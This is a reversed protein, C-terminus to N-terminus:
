ISLATQGLRVRPNKPPNIVRQQLIDNWRGRERVGPTDQLSYLDRVAVWLLTDFSEAQPKRQLVTLLEGLERPVLGEEMQLDSFFEAAARVRQEAFEKREESTLERLHDAM